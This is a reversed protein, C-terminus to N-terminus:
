IRLVGFLIAPPPPAATPEVRWSAIGMSGAVATAVELRLAPGVVDIAVPISQINDVSASGYQCHGACVNDDAPANDRDTMGACGEHHAIVETGSAKVDLPCAHASVAFQAFVLAFAALSAAFTRLRRTM